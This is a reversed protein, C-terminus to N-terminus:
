LISQSCEAISKVQILSLRDQFDIKLRKLPRKPCTKQLHYSGGAVAVPMPAGAQNPVAMMNVTGPNM